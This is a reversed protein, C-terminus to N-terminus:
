GPLRRAGGRSRRFAFRRIVACRALAFIKRWIALPWRISLPWPIANAHATATAPEVSHMFYDYLAAVDADTMIAYSPYPMAPYLTIGNKAIGHRVARRFRGAHVQRHRFRDPTINTSYIAGLPSNLKLGGAFAQQRRPIVPLVTPPLRSISM